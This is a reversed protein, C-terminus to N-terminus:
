VRIVKYAAAKYLRNRVALGCGDNEDFEAFVTQVGLRDFERLAAFLNRAYEANTSGGNIMVADDYVADYMLLVGCKGNQNRSILEKIKRQVAERGGEIVTVEADPAYHRYKMGPSVPKEDAALPLLINKDKRIDPAVTRLMEFTIGGPRLLVCGGRTTDVITSEVGVECCGGDIVADIRGNMDEMVDRATTPSPKGSINASPAAIPVGAARILARATGHSPCRVAVTDLGATVGDSIVSKKHLILTLPGPMFADILRKADQSIDRAAASIEEKSAVHVILPNDSPRGKAAYIKRAADDDYASAGLGYVTETPFAVLGGRRIIEGADTINEMTLLKTEVIM